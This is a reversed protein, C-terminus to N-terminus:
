FPIEYVEILGVGTSSGVGSLVVTYVGPDLRGCRPDASNDALSFAGVANMVAQVEEPRTFPASLQRSTAAAM